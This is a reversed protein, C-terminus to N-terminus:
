VGDQATNANFVAHSLKEVKIIDFDRSNVGIQDPILRIRKSFYETFITIFKIGFNANCTHFIKNLLLQVQRKIYTYNM